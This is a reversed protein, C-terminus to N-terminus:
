RETKLACCMKGLIQAHWTNVATDARSKSFHMLILWLSCYFFCSKRPTKKHTILTRKKKKLKCSIVLPMWVTPSLVNTFKDTKNKPNANQATWKFPLKGTECSTKLETPNLNQPRSTCNSATSSCVAGHSYKKIILVTIIKTCIPLKHHEAQLHM